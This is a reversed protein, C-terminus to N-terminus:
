EKFMEGLHTNCLTEVNINTHCDDCQLTFNNLPGDIM